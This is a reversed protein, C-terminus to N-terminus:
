RPDERERWQAGGDWWADVRSRHSESEFEVRWGRGEPEQKVSFGPNPTALLVTTGAPTFEFTARGGVLTFTRSEASASTTTSSSPSSPATETPPESSTTTSDSGDGLAADLDSAGLPAPRNNTVEDTVMEVGQWAATTALGAAVLWAAALTMTRRM